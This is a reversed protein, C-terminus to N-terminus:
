STVAAKVKQLTELSASKYATSEYRQIQQPKKHLRRALEEQTMHKSIRAKILEEGINDILDFSPQENSGEECRRYTDIEARLKEIDADLMGCHADFLAGPYDARSVNKRATELLELQQQASSLQRSNKLM